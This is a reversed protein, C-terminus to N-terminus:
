GEQANYNGNLFLRREMRRRRVLGELRRGGAQSYLLMSNAIGLYNRSSIEKGISHTRSFYGSGLNFAFSVLADFENQSLKIQLKRVANAAKHCDKRLLLLARVKSIRKNRENVTVGGMHLLHGYGITANGAADNYAHNRFGEFGAIFKLGKQSLKRYKALRRM